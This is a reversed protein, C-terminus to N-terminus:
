PKDPIKNKNQYQYKRSPFFAKYYKNFVKLFEEYTNNVNEISFLFSM